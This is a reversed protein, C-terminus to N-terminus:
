FELLAASWTGPAVWAEGSLAAATWSSQGDLPVAEGDSGLWRRTAHFRSKSRGAGGWGVECVCVRACVSWDILKAGVDGGM